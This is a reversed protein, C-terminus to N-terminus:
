LGSIRLRAVSLTQRQSAAGQPIDGSVCVLEERIKACAQPRSTPTVGLMRTRSSGAPELHPASDSRTVSLASTGKAPEVEGWVAQCGPSYMLRVTHTALFTENLETAQRDCRQQGPLRGDCLTSRCGVEPSPGTALAWPWQPHRASGRESGSLALLVGVGTAVAAAVCALVIGRRGAPGPRRLRRAPEVIDHATGAATGADPEVHAPSRTEAGSRGPASRGAAEAAAAEAAAEAEEWTEAALQWLARLRARDEGALRGLADAAQWPALRSGSLYRQWSSRSYATKAALSSMSLGTRDKLLRLREVLRRAEPPLGDPLPRWRGM